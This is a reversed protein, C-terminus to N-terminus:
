AQEDSSGGGSQLTILAGRGSRPKVALYARALLLRPQSHALPQASVWGLRGRALPHTWTPARGRSVQRADGERYHVLVPEGVPVFRHATKTSPDIPERVRDIWCSAAIM